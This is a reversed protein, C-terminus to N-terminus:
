PPPDGPPVAGLTRQPRLEGGHPHPNGIPRLHTQLSPGPLMQGAVLDPQHALMARRALALVIQGVQRRVRRQLPQGRQDLRAPHALLRVLLELFFEPEIVELAARPAPQVPMRQHRQDGVQEQLMQAQAGGLPSFLLVPPGGGCGVSGAM